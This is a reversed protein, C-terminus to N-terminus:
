GPDSKAGFRWDRDHRHDGALIAGGLLVDLLANERNLAARTTPEGAAACVAFYRRGYRETVDGIAKRLARHESPEFFEM